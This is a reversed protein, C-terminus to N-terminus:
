QNILGTADDVGKRIDHTDTGITDDRGNTFRHNKGKSTVCEGAPEALALMVTM